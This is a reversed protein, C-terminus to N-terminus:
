SFFYLKLLQCLRFLHYVSLILEIFSFFFIFFSFDEAPIFVFPAFVFFFSAKPIDVLSEKIIVNAIIIKVIAITKKELDNISDEM